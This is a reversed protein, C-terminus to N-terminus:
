LEKRIVNVVFELAGQQEKFVKECKSVTESYYENDSFLQQQVSFYDM